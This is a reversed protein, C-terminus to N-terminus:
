AKQYCRYSHSQRRVAIARLIRDSKLQLAHRVSYRALDATRDRPHWALSPARHGRTCSPRLKLRPSMSLSTQKRHRTSRSGPNQPSGCGSRVSWSDCLRAVVGSGQNSCSGQMLTSQRLRRSGAGQVCRPKATHPSNGTADSDAITDFFDLTRCVGKHSTHYPKTVGISEAGCHPVFAKTGAGSCCQSSHHKGAGAQELALTSHQEETCYLPPSAWVQTLGQM